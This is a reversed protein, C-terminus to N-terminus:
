FLKLLQSTPHQTGVLIFDGSPHFAICRVEAAEQMSLPCLHCSATSYVCHLLGYFLMVANKHNHYIWVHCLKFENLWGSVVVLLAM